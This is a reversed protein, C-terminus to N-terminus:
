APVRQRQPRKQRKQQPRRQLRRGSTPRRHSRERRVPESNRQAYMNMEAIVTQTEGDLYLEYRQRDEQQLHGTVGRLMQRRGKGDTRGMMWDLMNCNPNRFAWHLWNSFEHITFRANQTRNPWLTAFVVFLAPLMFVLRDFEVEREHAVAQEAAVAEEGRRFLGNARVSTVFGGCLTIVVAVVVTLSFSIRSERAYYLWLCLVTALVAHMAWAYQNSPQRNLANGKM